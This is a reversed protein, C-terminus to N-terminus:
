RAGALIGAVGLGAIAPRVQEAGAALVAAEAERQARRLQAVMRRTQAPTVQPIRTLDRRFDDLRDVIRLPITDSM